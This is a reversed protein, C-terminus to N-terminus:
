TRDRCVPTSRTCTPFAQGSEAHVSIDPFTVEIPYHEAPTSM